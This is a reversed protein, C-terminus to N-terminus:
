DAAQGYREALLPEYVAREQVSLWTDWAEPTGRKFARRVSDESVIRAIGLM